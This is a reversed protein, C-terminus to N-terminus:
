MRMKFRGYVAFAILGLFILLGFDSFLIAFVADLSPAPVDGSAQGPVPAAIQNYANGILSYIYIMAGLLGGAVTAAAAIPASQRGRRRQIARLAVEAIGGGIPLGLIIMFLLPIGVAKVIAGGVGALVACITAIIIYDYQSANFFKDEIGRVCEKCRYGVPTRVACDVCMYRGCKNCRLGTECDPHVACYTTEETPAMNVDPTAM